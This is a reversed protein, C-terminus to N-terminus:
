FFKYAFNSYCCYISKAMVMIGLCGIVRKHQFIQLFVCGLFHQMVDLLLSSELIGLCPIVGKRSTPESNINRRGSCCCLPQKYGRQAAARRPIRGTEISKSDGDDLQNM